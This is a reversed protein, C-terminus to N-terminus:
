AIRAPVRGLSTAARGVRSVVTPKGRLLRRVVWRDTTVNVQGPGDFM